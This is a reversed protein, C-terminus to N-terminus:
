FVCFVCMRAGAAFPITVFLLIYHKTM